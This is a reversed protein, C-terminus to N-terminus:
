RRPRGLVRTHKELDGAVVATYGALVATGLPSTAMEAVVVAAVARGLRGAQPSQTSRALAVLAVRAPFGM